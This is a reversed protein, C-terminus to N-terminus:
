PPLQRVGKVEGLEQLDRPLIEINVSETKIDSKVKKNSIGRMRWPM